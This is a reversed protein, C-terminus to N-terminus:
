DDPTGRAVRQHYGIDNARFPLELDDAKQVVQVGSARMRGEASGGHQPPSLLKRSETYLPHLVYDYGYTLAPRPKFQSHNSAGM